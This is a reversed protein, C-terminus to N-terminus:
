NVRVDATYQGGRAAGFARGAGAEAVWRYHARLLARREAPLDALRVWPPNGVVADFGGADMVDAFHLRVDFASGHGAANAAGENRALAALTEQAEALERRETASLAHTQGLLDHGPSQLTAIRTAIAERARLSLDGAIAAEIDRVRRELLYKAAGSASALAAGAERLQRALSPEVAIGRSWAAQWPSILADGHRLHHGLNPLPVIHDGPGDPMTSALDLWLRLEALGVATASIDVGYLNRSVVFRKAQALTEPTGLWTSLTVRHKALEELAGLLFAGSGVAPDLVCFRSICALADSAGEGTRLSVDLPTKLRTKLAETIAAKVM